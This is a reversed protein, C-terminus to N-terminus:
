GDLLPGFLRTRLVFLAYAGVSALILLAIVLFAVLIRLWARRGLMYDRLLLIIIHIAVTVGLTVLGLLQVQPKVFLTGAAILLVEFLYLLRLWYRFLEALLSRPVAVEVFGWFLRGFRALWAAPRRGVGRYGDSISSLIEGVVRTSRSLVRLTTKPDANRNVEYSKRFFKHLKKKTLHSRLVEELVSNLSSDGAGEMLRRLAAENGGTSDTTALANAILQLVQDRDEALIEEELIALQAERILEKRKKKVEYEDGPLLASVLREAGDLRGWLIDNRRWGRDLFAGFNRLSTGALKRRRETPDREDILSTADEPSVRLVDVADIEEGVETSYLIPYSIMDYRDYSEYYHRVAKVAADAFPGNGHDVEARDLLDKCDRAATVTARRIRKALETALGRFANIGTTSKFLLDRAKSSRQEETPQAFVDRLSETTLGTDEAVKVVEKHLPNTSGPLELEAGTKRLGALIEDFRSRLRRLMARFEQKEADESPMPKVDLYTLIRAAEQDLVYLRDIRNLVFDLRRIRYALDYQVLFKNQTKKEESGQETSDPAEQDGRYAEYYEERWERVLYRIARFEDSQLDFGVVRAILRAIEDTLAGVKLRHYGGYAVGEAEIMIRLDKDGFNESRVPESRVGNRVDRGQSAFQVDSERESIISDVREILHNRARVHQLDERITEYRALSFAAAVNEVPNIPDDAQSWQASMEPSPDIYVLKRDVPVGSNRVALTDIAHGFPKNDLYGGDVFPRGTFDYTQPSHARDGTPQRYDPFFRQWRDRDLGLEGLHRYTTMTELVANIDSLKMPEFAFPFASTCRAAYALFPDNDAHFDNWPKKLYEHAYRFHFVNRHRREEVVDDSLRLQIPLGHFDTATVFLDLEELYPSKETSPGDGKMGDLAELLRRYMRQSNLLSKPPKQAKLGDLQEVSRADNILKLIDGEEVWLRKLQDITQGNALAKALYVANIGGASTGSLIDVTFRTYIPTPTDLDPLKQAGEGEWGLIRGLQRYVRETGRLEEDPLLPAEGREDPATARVMKLLEQAVGNIYIALSVGGYMVVAFRIEKRVEMRSTKTEM